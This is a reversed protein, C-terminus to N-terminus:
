NSVYYSDEFGLDRVKALITRREDADTAPGVIVRWFSKGSSSQELVTPIMGAQRMATATNRANQEISFIGIQAFLKLCDKRGDLCHRFKSFLRSLRRAGFDRRGLHLIKWRRRFLKTVKADYALETTAPHADHIFCFM